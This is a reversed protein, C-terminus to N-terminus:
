SNGQQCKPIIVLTYKEPLEFGQSAYKLRIKANGIDESEIVQATKTKGVAYEM